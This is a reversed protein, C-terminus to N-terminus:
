SEYTVEFTKRDAILGHKRCVAALEDISLFGSGDADIKRFAGVRSLLLGVGSM